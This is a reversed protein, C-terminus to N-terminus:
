MKERLEFISLGAAQIDGILPYIIKGSPGIWLTKDLETHRYVTIEIKDGPGLIYESDKIKNTKTSGAKDVNKGELGQEGAGQASRNDQYNGQPLCTVCGGIFLLCICCVIKLTIRFM